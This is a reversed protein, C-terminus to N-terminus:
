KEKFLEVELNKADESRLAITTNGLNVAIPDNFPSKKVVKIPTNLIGLEILRNKLEKLDGISRVIGSEGIKMDSLKKRM